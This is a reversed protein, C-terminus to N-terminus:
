LATLSWNVANKTEVPQTLAEIALTFDLKGTLKAPLGGDLAVTGGGSLASITGRVPAPDKALEFAPPAKADIAATWAEGSWSRTMTGGTFPAPLPVAGSPGPLALIQSWLRALAAPGYAARAQADLPPPDGPVAAPARQNIAAIVEDAGGVASVAGTARDVTLVLTKGALVLLHGLLPDDGGAGTTSDVTIETGPGRHTARVQVFTANLTLRPGDIAACRLALDWVIETDYRLTDGASAWQTTQTTTWRYLRLQDVTPAYELATLATALFLLCLRSMRCSTTRREANPTRRKSAPEQM